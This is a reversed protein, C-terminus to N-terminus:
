QWGYKVLGICVSCDSEVCRRCLPSTTWEEQTHSHICVDTTLPCTEICKDCTFAGCVYCTTQSCEACVTKGCGPCLGYCNECVVNGCSCTALHDALEDCTDCLTDAFRHAMCSYLYITEGDVAPVHFTFELYPAWICVVGALSVHVRAGYRAKLEELRWNMDQQIEELYEQYRTEVDEIERKVKSIQEAYAAYTEPSRALDSRVSVVALRRFLKRLPYMAEQSLQHYYEELREKEQEYRLRAGLTSSEMAKPLRSELYRCAKMYLRYLEYDGTDFALQEQHVVWSQWRSPIGSRAKTRLSEKESFGRNAILPWVPPLPLAKSLDVLPMPQEGCPDVLLSWFSTTKIDAMFTIRFSFLVQRKFLFRRKVPFAKSGAWLRQAQREARESCYPAWFVLQTSSLKPAYQSKLKNGAGGQLLYHFGQSSIEM